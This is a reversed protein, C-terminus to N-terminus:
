VPIVSVELSSPDEIPTDIIEIGSDKRAKSVDNDIQEFLPEEDMELHQRLKQVRSTLKGFRDLKLAFVDQNDNSKTEKIAQAEKPINHDVVRLFETLQNVKVQALETQLSGGKTTLAEASQLM